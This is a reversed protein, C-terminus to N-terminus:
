SVYVHGCGGCICTCLIYIFILPGDRHVRNKCTCQSTCHHILFHWTVCAGASMCSIFTKSSTAIFKHIHLHLTHKHSHSMMKAIWAVSSLLDSGPARVWIVVDYSMNQSNNACAHFILPASNHNRTILKQCTLLWLRRSRSILALPASIVIIDSLLWSTVCDSNYDILVANIQRASILSSSLAFLTVNKINDHQQTVAFLHRVQPLPHSPIRPANPHHCFVTALM